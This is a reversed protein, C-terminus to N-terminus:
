FTRIVLYLAASYPRPAFSTTVLRPFKLPLNPTLYLSTIEDIQILYGLVLPIVAVAGPIKLTRGV